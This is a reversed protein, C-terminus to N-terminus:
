QKAINFSVTDSNLRCEQSEIYLNKSTVLDLKMGETKHKQSAQM